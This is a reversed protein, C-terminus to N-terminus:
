QRSPFDEDERACPGVLGDPVVELVPEVEINLMQQMQRAGIIDSM